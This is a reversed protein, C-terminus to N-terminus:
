GQVLRPAELLGLQLIPQPRCFTPLSADSGVSAVVKRHVGPHFQDGPDHAGQPSRRRQITSAGGCLGVKVGLKVVPVTAKVLGKLMESFNDCNYYAFATPFMLSLLQIVLFPMM